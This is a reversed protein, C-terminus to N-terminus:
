VPNSGHFRHSWFMPPAAGRTQVGVVGGGGLQSNAPPGGSAPPPPEPLALPPADPPHKGPPPPPNHELFSGLTRFCPTATNPCAQTLVLPALPPPPPMSYLPPCCHGGHPSWRPGHLAPGRPAYPPGVQVVDRPDFSRSCVMADGAAPFTVQFAVPSAGAYQYEVSYDQGPTGSEWICPVTGMVQGDVLVTAGKLDSMFHVQGRSQGASTEPLM